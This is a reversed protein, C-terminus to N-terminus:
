PSNQPGPGAQSQALAPWNSYAFVWFMVINVLPIFYLLVWWGSYGAKTITRWMPIILAFLLAIWFLSEFASAAASHHM